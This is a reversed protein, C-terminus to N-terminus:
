ERERNELSASRREFSFAATPSPVLLAERGWALMFIVTRHLSSSCFLLLCQASDIILLFLTVITVARRMRARDLQVAIAVVIVTMLLSGDDTRIPDASSCLPPDGAEELVLLEFLSRPM